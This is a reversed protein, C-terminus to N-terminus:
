LREQGFGLFVLMGGLTAIFAPVARYAVWWGQWLGLLAGAAIAVVVVVPTSWGQWVQLMAAIGGTLGVISGVSLDIHGAVIVLTMGVALIAIVAMQTFLNSINRSSLFDGGTLVTFIVAISILAFILTYSQLDFKFPLKRDKKDLQPQEIMAQENSM